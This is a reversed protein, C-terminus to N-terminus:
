DNIIKEKNEWLYDIFKDWNMLLQHRVDVKEETEEKHSFLSTICIEYEYKWAFYYNVLSKMEDSFAEKTDYNRLHHIIREFFAFHDFVNFIEVKNKTNNVRFVNWEFRM